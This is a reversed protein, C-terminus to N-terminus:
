FGKPVETEPQEIKERLWAPIQYNMKRTKKQFINSIDEDGPDPTSQSAWTETPNM